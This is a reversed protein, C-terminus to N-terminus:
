NYSIIHFMFILMKMMLTLEPNIFWPKSITPTGELYILYDCYSVYIICLHYGGWNFLRPGLPKNMWPKSMLMKMMVRQYVYLFSNFIAWKNISSEGTLLKAHHNEM